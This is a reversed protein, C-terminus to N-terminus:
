RILNELFRKASENALSHLKEGEPMTDMIACAINSQWAFYYSGESKDKKLENVIVEMAKEIKSKMGFDGKM